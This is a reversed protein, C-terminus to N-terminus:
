ILRGYFPKVDPLLSTWRHYEKYVYGVDLMITHDSQLLLNLSNTAGALSATKSITGFHTNSHNVKEPPRPFGCVSFPSQFATSPLGSCLLIHSHRILLTVLMTNRLRPLVFCIMGHKCSRNEHLAGFDSVPSKM